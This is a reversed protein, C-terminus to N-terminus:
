FLTNLILSYNSLISLTTLIYSFCFPALLVDKLYVVLQAHESPYRIELLHQIAENQLIAKLMIWSLSSQLM